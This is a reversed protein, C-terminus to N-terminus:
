YAQSRTAFQVELLKRYSGHAVGQVRSGPHPLIINKRRLRCFLFSHSNPINALNFYTFGQTVVTGAVFGSTLAYTVMATKRGEDECKSVRGRGPWLFLLYFGSLIIFESVSPLSFSLPQQASAELDCKDM